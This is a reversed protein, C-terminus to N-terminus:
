TTPHYVEKTPNNQTKTKNWPQFIARVQRPVTGKSASGGSAYCKAKMDISVSLVLSYILWAMKCWIFYLM